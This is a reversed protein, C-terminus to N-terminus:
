RIGFRRFEGTAVDAIEEVSEVFAGSPGQQAWARLRALAPADGEAVIEVTGDPRNRVWGVLGLRDAEEQATARFFVGHVRGRVILHLRTLPTPQRLPHSEFERPVRM